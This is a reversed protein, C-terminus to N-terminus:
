EENFSFRSNEFFTSSNNEKSQKYYDFLYMKESITSSLLKLLKIVLIEIISFRTETSQKLINYCVFFFNDLNSQKLNKNTQWISTLEGM